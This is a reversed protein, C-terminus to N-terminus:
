SWCSGINREVTLRSCCCSKYVVIGHMLLLLLLLMFIQVVSRMLLKMCVSQVLCTLYCQAHLDTLHMM